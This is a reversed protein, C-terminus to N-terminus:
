AVDYVAVAVDAAAHVEDDGLEEEGAAGGFGAGEGFVVGVAVKGRADDAEEGAGKEPAVLGAVVDFAVVGGAEVEGRAWWRGGGLVRLFTSRWVWGTLASLFSFIPLALTIVSIIRTKNPTSLRARCPFQSASISIAINADGTTTIPVTTYKRIL